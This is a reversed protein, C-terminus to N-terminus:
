RKGPPHPPPATPQRLLSAARARLAEGAPDRRQTADAPGASPSPPPPVPPTSEATSRLWAELMRDFLRASQAPDGGSLKQAEATVARLFTLYDSYKSSGASRRFSPTPPVFTGSDSAMILREAAELKAWSKSSIPQKGGICVYLTQRNLGMAAAVQTLDGGLIARLHEVRDSFNKIADTKNKSQTM